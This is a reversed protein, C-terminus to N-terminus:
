NGSKAVPNMTVAPSGSPNRIRRSLRGAAERVRRPVRVPRGSSRRAGTGVYVVAIDHAGANRQAACQVASYGVVGGFPTM